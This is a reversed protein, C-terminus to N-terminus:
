KTQAKNRITLLTKRVTLYQSGLMFKIGELVEYRIKMRFRMFPNRVINLVDEVKMNNLIAYRGLLKIGKVHRVKTTPVSDYITTFGYDAMSQLVLKSSFGNPISAVKIPENLISELIQSSVSWEEILSEMDLADMRLPHSHSHSGIIHGRKRLAIIEDTTLFGPSDVYQTAIFFVGLFGYKELIPAILNLFSSGGDDFTFVINSKKIHKNVCYNSILQVQKEFAKESIKYPVAGITQFGSEKVDRRFLDHYMFVIQNSM